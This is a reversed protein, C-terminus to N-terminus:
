SPMIRTDRTIGLNTRELNSFTSLVGFSLGLIFRQNDESKPIAIGLNLGLQPTKPRARAAYCSQLQGYLAWSTMRCVKAICIRNNNNNNNIFGPMFADVQLQWGDISFVNASSFQPVV